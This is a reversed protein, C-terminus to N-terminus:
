SSHMVLSKVMRRPPRSISICLVSALSQFMVKTSVPSCELMPWRRSRTRLYRTPSGSNRPLSISAMAFM